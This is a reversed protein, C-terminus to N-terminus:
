HKRDFQQRDQSTAEKSRSHKGAFLVTTEPFLDAIPKTKYMYEDNEDDMENDDTGSSLFTKLRSKGNLAKKEESENKAQAFIRDRVNSPFMSSVIANTRTMAILLKRNRRVVFTDFMLFATIMFIFAFVLMTTTQVANSSSYREEFEKSPYVHLYYLCHGEVSTLEEETFEDTVQYFPIVTQMHDYRADHM